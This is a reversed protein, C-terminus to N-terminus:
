DLLDGWGVERRVFPFDYKWNKVKSKKKIATM